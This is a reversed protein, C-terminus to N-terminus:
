NPAYLSWHTINYLSPTLTVLTIDPNSQQFKDIIAQMESQRDDSSDFGDFGILSITEPKLALALALAYACVNTDTILAKDGKYSITDDNLEYDCYATGYAAMDKKQANTLISYPLVLKGSYDHYKKMDAVIRFSNCAVCLDVLQSDFDQHANLMLVYTDPDNLKEKIADMHEHISPGKGLIVINKKMGVSQPQWHLNEPIKEPQVAQQLMLKSYRTSDLNRLYNIIRYIEGPTYINHSLLEQIFTPHIKYVAAMFYYINSGWEHESKLPTFHTDILRILKEHNAQGGNTADIEILLEELRVNGAGRGMGTVTADIYTAGDKIAQLSNQLALGMNDHAHIGIPGDWNQRFTKMIRSVDDPKLTGLSDAFYLVSAGTEALERVAAAIATDDAESIQMLNAGVKYGRSVLETIAPKVTAVEDFHFAFRVWEVVSADADVPFLQSTVEAVSYDPSIFDGANVMVSISLNEPLDIKELFTDTAYAFPGKQGESSRFRFGIEVIDVGADTMAHLYSQVADPKFHWDTYYGGDRFTCDLLTIASTNIM